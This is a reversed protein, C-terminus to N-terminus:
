MMGAPEESSSVLRTIVCTSVSGARWAPPPSCKAACRAAVPGPRRSRPWYAAIDRHLQLRLRLRLPPRPSRRPARALDACPPAPAPRRTGASAAPCSRRGSWRAPVRAHDLQKRLVRVSSRATPAALHRSAMLFIGPTTSTSFPMSFVMLPGADRKLTSGTTAARAPNEGCSTSSSALAMRCPSGAGCAPPPSRGRRCWERASGRASARWARLWGCYAAPSRCPCSRWAPSAPRCPPLDRALGFDAALVQLAIHLHGRAEFAHVQAVPM